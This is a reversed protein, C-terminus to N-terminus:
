EYESHKAKALGVLDNDRDFVTYFKQMFTDGLLFIDKGSYSKLGLPSIITLCDIKSKHKHNSFKKVYHNSPLTYRDGGEFVFSNLFLTLPFSSFKRWTQFCMTIKVIKLTRFNSLLKQMLMMLFLLLLREQILHLMVRSKRLAFELLSTVWRCM